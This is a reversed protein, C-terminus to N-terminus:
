HRDDSRIDGNLEAEIQSRRTFCRFVPLIKVFEQRFQKSSFFSCLIPLILSLDIPLELLFRASFSLRLNESGFLHLFHIIETLNFILHTLALRLTLRTLNFEMRRCRSVTTPLSGLLIKDRFIISSFVLLAIPALVVFLFMKLSLFVTKSLNEPRISCFFHDNENLEAFIPAPVSFLLFFIAVILLNLPLLQFSNMRRYQVNESAAACRDITALVLFYISSGRLFTELFSIVRCLIMSSRSIEALFRHILLTAAQVFNSLSLFFFYWSCVHHNFVPRTFILMGISNAVLSVVVITWLVVIRWVVLKHSM